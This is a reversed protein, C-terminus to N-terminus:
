ARRPPEQLDEWQITVIRKSGSGYINVKPFTIWNVRHKGGHNLVKGCRWEVSGGKGGQGYIVIESNCTIRYRAM